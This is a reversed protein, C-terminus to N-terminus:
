KRMSPSSSRAIGHNLRCRRKARNRHNRHRIDSAAQLHDHKWPHDVRPQLPVRHFAADVVQTEVPLVFPVRSLFGDLGGPFVGTVAVGNVKAVSFSSGDTRSM